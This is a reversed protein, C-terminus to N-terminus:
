ASTTQKDNILGKSIKKIEKRLQDPIDYRTTGALGDLLGITRAITEECCSYKTTTLKM